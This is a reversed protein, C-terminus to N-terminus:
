CKKLDVVKDIVTIYAVAVHPGVSRREIYQKLVHILVAETVKDIKGATGRRGWSGYSWRLEM